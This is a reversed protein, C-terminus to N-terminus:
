AQVESWGTVSVEDDAITMAYQQAARAVLKRRQEPKLGPELKLGLERFSVEVSGPAKASVPVLWKLHLRIKSM